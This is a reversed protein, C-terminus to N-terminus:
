ATIGNAEHRMPKLRTIRPVVERPIRADGFLCSLSATSNFFAEVTAVLYEPSLKIGSPTYYGVAIRPKKGPM